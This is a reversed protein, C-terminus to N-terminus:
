ALNLCQMGGSAHVFGRLLVVAKQPGPVRDTLNELVLENIPAGMLLMVERGTKDRNSVLNMTACPSCAAYGLLYRQHHGLVLFRGGPTLCNLPRALVVSRCRSTLAWLSPRGDLICHARRLSQSTNVMALSSAECIM